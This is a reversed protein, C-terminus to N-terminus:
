SRPRRVSRSGTLWGVAPVSVLLSRSQSCPGTRGRRAGSRGPRRRRSPSGAPVGSPRCGAAPRARSAAARGPGAGPCRGPAARRRARGLGLDRAGDGAAAPRRSANGGSSRPSPPAPRGAPTRSGRWRGASRPPGTRGAARPQHEGAAPVEVADVGAFRRGVLVGGGPQAPGRGARTRSAQSGADGVRAVQPAARDVQGDARQGQPQVAPRPRADNRSCQRSGALTPWAPPSYWTMGTPTNWGDPSAGQFRRCSKESHRHM